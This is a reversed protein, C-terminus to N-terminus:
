ETIYSDKESKKKLQIFGNNFKLQIFGIPLRFFFTNGVSRSMKLWCSVAEPLLKWM